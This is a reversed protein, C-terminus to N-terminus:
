ADCEEGRVRLLGFGIRLRVGAVFNVNQDYDSMGIVVYFHSGIDCFEDLFLVLGRSDHITRAPVRAAIGGPGLLGLSERVDAFHLRTMREGRISDSVGPEHM